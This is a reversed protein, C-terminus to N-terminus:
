VFHAPGICYVSLITQMAISAHRTANRNSQSNFQPVTFNLPMDKLVTNNTWDSTFCLFPKFQNLALTDPYYPVYFICM